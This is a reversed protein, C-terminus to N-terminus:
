YLLINSDTIVFLNRLIAPSENCVFNLTSEDYTKSNKNSRIVTPGAKYNTLRSTGTM